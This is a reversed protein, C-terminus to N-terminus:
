ISIVKFETSCIKFVTNFYNCNLSKNKYSISSVCIYVINKEKKRNKQFDVFSNLKQIQIDNLSNCMFSM